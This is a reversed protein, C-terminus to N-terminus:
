KITSVPNLSSRLSHDPVCPATDPTQPSSKGAKLRSKAASPEQRDSIKM